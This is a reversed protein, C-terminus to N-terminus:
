YLIKYSNIEKGASVLVLYIGKSPLPTNIDSPANPVRKITKGMSDYITIQSGVPIESLYLRNDSVWWKLPNVTHSNVSSAVTTKLQIEDSIGASNGQPTVTYYYTFDSQLGTVNFSLANGTLKPYGSVSVPTSVSGETAVKVYDVYVRSKSNASLTIKSVSTMDSIVMTFDQAAVDTTLTTIDQGDVKVYIKAGTDNAYQRARVTLNASGSLDLAPTTIAGNSSSSAMRVEGVSESLNTYGTSNWGAPMTSTNFGEELLTKAVTGGSSYSYVNLLYDTAGASSTWNATFGNDTINTAPLAIFSDTSSGLLNVTVATIGGGSITLVANHAGLAQAAYTITLTYGAQADTQSVSAASLSFQAANTGSVALTLGGTLNVGKIVISKTVAQQYPTKGFDVLSGTSPSTLYPVPTNNITWPQGKKDGWIYEALEPHDIFPNRNHQFDSYIVNNRNIEKPSVPDQRHWKLLLAVSWANLAPYKTGDLHESNWGSVKGEYATVMYFYTRAMDGKLEDAPEFVTGAYGPFNSVGLRCYNNNSSYAVTGVEGFPFNSRVGNVKGDSPYLHFLDTYMPTANNFWSKPFSHERNYCDGENNYNGCQNTGFTYNTTNSYIDWVKGDARKDTTKFAMWLGDYSIATHSGIIGFLATKLAADSKNEAASYYGAPEQGFAAVCVILLFLPLIIKKM